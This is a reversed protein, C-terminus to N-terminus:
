VELADSAASGDLERWLMYASAIVAPGIFLGIFGLMHMGGLISVVTQLFPMKTATSIFKPRIFHEVSFLLVVCFLGILLGAKLSTTWVLVLGVLVAAPIGCFPIIAACGILVTLMAAHHSGSALIVPYCLVAEACGLMVLGMVAGRISRVVHIVVDDRNLLRRSVSLVSDRVREYSLLCCAATMLAIVGTEILHPLSKLRELVLEGVASSLSSMRNVATGVTQTVTSGPRNVYDQASQPMHRTITAVVHSTATEGESHIQAIRRIIHTIEDVESVLHISLLTSLGAGFACAASIIVLAAAKQGIRTGMRRQLPRLSIALVAGSVLATLLSSLIYFAGATAALALAGYSIQRVWLSPASGGGSM